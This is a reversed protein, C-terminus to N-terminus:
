KYFNLALKYAQQLLYFKDADGGMDPHVTKAMTKYASHIFEEAAPKSPLGLTQWVQAEAMTSDPLAKFGTFVDHSEGVGWREIGRMAGLHAAIAALNDAVRDWKDCPLCYDRGDLKFYVAVGSDRPEKYNSYPMGDKKVQINTSVIVSDKPIRWQKGPKTFANLEKQLRNSADYISLSRSLGEQRTGFGSSKREREPTRIKNSPWCLPFAEISM